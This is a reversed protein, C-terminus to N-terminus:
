KKLSAWLSGIYEHFAVDSLWLWYGSPFFDMPAITSSESLYREAPAPLPKMGLKEFVLMARPMHFGSTVLLFPEAQIMKKLEVAQGETNISDQELVMREASIGLELAALQMSRAESVESSTNGGSLLLKAKPFLRLLRIGEVLRALSSSSVQATVPLDKNVRNGGGLVVIWRLEPASSASLVPPFRTELPRLLLNAMPAVCFALLLITSLGVCLLARGKKQARMLYYLGIIQITFVIALPSLLLGLIKKLIFLINM